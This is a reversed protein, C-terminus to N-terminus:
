IAELLQPYSLGVMAGHDASIGVEAYICGEEASRKLYDYIVDVYDQATRMVKTADDYAQLFGRLSDKATGEDKWQFSQSKGSILHPPVDIKNRHAIRKVLDPTITGEIHVHLDVKPVRRINEPLLM